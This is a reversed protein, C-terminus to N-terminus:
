PTSQRIYVPNEGVEVQVAGNEATLTATAGNREILVANHNPELSLTVTESGGNRWVIDVLDNRDRLRVHFRAQPTRDTSLDYTYSHLPGFGIFYAEQLQDLMVTYAGYAVKERYNEDKTGVISTAGWEPFYTGDFKDELQLYNLHHVGLALAIAHARVMYNAQEEESHCVWGTSMLRGVGPMTILNYPLRDPRWEDDLYAQTSSLPCTPWGVEGVWLEPREGGRQQTNDELWSQATRIRGWMTVTPFLNPQDPAVNPMYPHIPLVDFAEWAEPVEQLMENFFSLGDRRGDGPNWGGDFIYVGGVTVIADPNAAKAGRYGALLLRGYEEPSGPWTQWANPENWLQWVEVVPSGPADEFGDGDYREVTAQVIDAYDQVDAPPCWYDEAPPRGMADFRRRRQACDPVRAWEPTTSIMGIIRYGAANIQYLRDDFLYWERDEAKRHREINGWSIEERAWRVGTDRGMEILHAVGEEGDRNTPPIRELGTFYTNLGFFDIAAPELEIPPLWRDTRILPLYLRQSADDQGIHAEPPEPRPESQALVSVSMSSALVILLILVPFPNKKKM